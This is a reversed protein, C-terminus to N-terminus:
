SAYFILTLRTHVYASTAMVYVCRLLGEAYLVFTCRIMLLFTRARVYAQRAIYTRVYLVYAYTLVAVRSTGAQFSGSTRVYPACTIFMGLSRSLRLFCRACTGSRPASICPACRGRSRSGPSRRLTLPALLLGPSQCSTQDADLRPM